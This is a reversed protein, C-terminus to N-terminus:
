KWSERYAGMDAVAQAYLAEIQEDKGIGRTFEISASGSYGHSQLVAVCAKLRARGAPSAHEPDRLQVHLHQLRTGFRSIWTELAIPDGNIHAIVGYRIPDLDQFFAAAADPKELVTGPHCECLLRCDPNITGGWELLHKRYEALNAPDAGLNYKLAPANLQKIADAVRNRQEADAPKDTFGAYTNFVAIASRSDRLRSQEDVDVSFYHNEWLEVGAFGDAVVRSLWDSVRFSPVRSGWRNRELCVSALYTKPRTM